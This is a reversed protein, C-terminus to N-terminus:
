RTLNDMNKLKEEINDRDKARNRLKNRYTYVTNLSLGLLRSIKDSDTVGLRMFAAIRLEPSLKEDTVPSFSADDRMMANLEDVFNPYIRLFAKDFARLFKENQDKIMEGSEAMRCLDQSQGTKVKRVILTNLESIREVYSSCLALIQTIYEDKSENSRALKVRYSALRQKSRYIVFLMVVSAIMIATIVGLLVYLWVMRKADRDSYAKSVVPLINFDNLSRVKSGSEVSNELSHSLYRHARQIDDRGYLDFALRQLSTTEKTGAFADSMSSLALYFTAKDQDLVHDTYYDALTAAIRAYMDDGFLSETLAARLEALALPLNNKNMASWGKQYLQHSSGTPLYKMLSDSMALAKRRYEEGHPDDAYLASTTVYLEFGKDFYVPKDEPLLDSGDVSEFADISEKVIGRLPNVAALELLAKLRTRSDANDNRYVTIFYRAASDVNYRRYERGLALMMEPSNRSDVLLVKLKKIRGEKVRSYKEAHRIYADTSDIVQDLSIIEPDIPMAWVIRVTCLLFAVLVIRRLESM